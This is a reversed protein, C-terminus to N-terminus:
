CKKSDFSVNFHFHMWSKMMVQNFWVCLILACRVQGSGLHGCDTCSICLDESQIEDDTSNLRWQVLGIDGCDFPNQTVRKGECVSCAQEASSLFTFFRIRYSKPLQFAVLGCSALRFSSIFTVHISCAVCLFFSSSSSRECRPASTTEVDIWSVSHTTFINENLLSFSNKLSRETITTHEGNNSWNHSTYIYM